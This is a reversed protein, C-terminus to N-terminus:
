DGRRNSAPDWGALQRLLDPAQDALSMDRLDPTGVGHRGESTIIFALWYPPEGTRRYDFVSVRQAGRQVLGPFLASVEPALEAPVQLEVSPRSAPSFRERVLREESQLWLALVGPHRQLEDLMDLPVSGTTLGGPFYEPDPVYDPVQCEDTLQLM